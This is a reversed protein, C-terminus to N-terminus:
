TTGSIMSDAMKNVGRGVKLILWLHVPLDKDTTKVVPGSILRELRMKLFPSFNHVDDYHFIGFRLPRTAKTKDGVRFRVHNIIRLVVPRM